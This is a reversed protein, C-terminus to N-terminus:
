ALPIDDLADLFDAGARAVQWIELEGDALINEFLISDTVAGACGEVDFQLFLDDQTYWAETEAKWDRELHRIISLFHETTSLRYTDRGGLTFAVVSPDGAGEHSGAVEFDTIIRNGPEGRFDYVAGSSTTTAALNAIIGSESFLGEIAEATTDVALATNQGNVTIDFTAGATSGEGVDLRGDVAAHTERQIITPDDSRDMWDFDIFLFKMVATQANEYTVFARDVIAYDFDFGFALAEAAVFELGGDAAATATLTGSAISLGTTTTLAASVSATTASDEGFAIAGSFVDVANGPPNFDIVRAGFMQDYRTSLWDIKGISDHLATKSWDSRFLRLAVLGIQTDTMSEHGDIARDLFAERLRALFHKM